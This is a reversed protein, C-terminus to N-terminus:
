TRPDHMARLKPDDLGRPVRKAPDIRYGALILELLRGFHKRARDTSDALFGLEREANEPDSSIAAELSSRHEEIWFLYEHVRDLAYAIADIDKTAPDLPSEGPPLVSDSNM